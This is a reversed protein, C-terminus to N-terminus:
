SFWIPMAPRSFCARAGLERGMALLYILLGEPADRSDPAVHVKACRTYNGYVGRKSSLGIVRVGRSGLSRAIGLGTYFMNMVIAVPPKGSASVTESLAPTGRTGTTIQIRQMRKKLPGVM